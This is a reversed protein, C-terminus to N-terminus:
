DAQAAPQDQKSQGAKKTNRPKRTNAAKPKSEPNANTPGDPTPSPTQVDAPKTEM